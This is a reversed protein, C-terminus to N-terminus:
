GRRAGSRRTASFLRGRIANLHDLNDRVANLILQIGALPAGARLMDSEVGM